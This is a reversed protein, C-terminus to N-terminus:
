EDLCWGPPLPDPIEEYPWVSLLRRHGAVVERLWTPAEGGALMAEVASAIDARYIGEPRMRPCCMYGTCFVGGAEDRRYKALAPLHMEGRSNLELRRAPPATTSRKSGAEPPYAFMISSSM